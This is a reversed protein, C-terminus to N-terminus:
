ARNKRLFTFDGGSKKALIYGALRLRVIIYLTKSRQLWRHMGPLCHHFEVAIQPFVRPHNKLLDLLAGYECGEIDLKLLCFNRSATDNIIESLSKCNFTTKKRGDKFDTPQYSEGDTPESFEIECSRGAIGIGHHTIGSGPDLTRCTEVGTPSPDYLEVAVGFKESLSTEFSIDRGAGGSICLSGPTLLTPNVWWGSKGGLRTLGSISKTPVKM